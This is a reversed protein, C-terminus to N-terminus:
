HRLVVDQPGPVTQGPSVPESRVGVFVGVACHQNKSALCGMLVWLVISIRAELKGFMRDVGVACHQNKSALCGMLVWLVINIRAELKGFM